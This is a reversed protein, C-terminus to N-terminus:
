ENKVGLGDSEKIYADWDVGLESCLLREILSAFQHEKHYPAKKDDGPEDLSDVTRNKEFEMDFKDIDKNRIGRQETLFQEILEHIVVLFEYKDNMKSVHVQLVGDSDTYYDGITPYRQDKNDITEIVIKKM